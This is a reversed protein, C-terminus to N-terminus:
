LKYKVKKKNKGCEKNTISWTTKVKNHSNLILKDYEIGKAKRIVM